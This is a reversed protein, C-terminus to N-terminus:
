IKGGKRTKFKDHAKEFGTRLKKFTEMDSTTKAADEMVGVLELVLDTTAEAFSINAKGSLSKKLQEEM